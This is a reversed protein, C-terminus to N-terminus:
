KKSGWIWGQIAGTIGKNGSQESASSAIGLQMEAPSEKSKENGVKTSSGKLKGAANEMTQAPKGGQRRAERMARIEKDEEDRAELEKLWAQTKERAKREAVAQDFEKRKHRDTKWYMSGVVLALITFGQAYVRARFM